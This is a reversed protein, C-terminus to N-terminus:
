RFLICSCDINGLDKMKTKLENKSQIEEYETQICSFAYWFLESHLRKEYLTFHKYTEACTLYLILSM